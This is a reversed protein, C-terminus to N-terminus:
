IDETVHIFSKANPRNQRAHLETEYWNGCNDSEHYNVIVFKRPEPKIRYLHSNEAIEFAPIPGDFDVWGSSSNFQLTKGESWAQILPSEFIAKHQERTM